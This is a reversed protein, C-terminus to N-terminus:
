PSCGFIGLVTFRKAENFGPFLHSFKGCAERNEASIVCDDFAVCIVRKTKILHLTSPIFHDASFRKREVM